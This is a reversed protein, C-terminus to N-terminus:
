CFFFLPFLSPFLSLAISIKALVVCCHTSNLLLASIATVSFYSMFDIYLTVIATSGRTDSESVFMLVGRRVVTLFHRPFIGQSEFFRRLTHKTSLASYTKDKRKRM